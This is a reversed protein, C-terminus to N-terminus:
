WAEAKRSHARQKTSRPESWQREREQPLPKLRSSKVSGRRYGFLGHRFGSRCIHGFCFFCRLSGREVFGLEPPRLQWRSRCVHNKIRGIRPQFQRVDRVRGSYQLPGDSAISRPKAALGVTM